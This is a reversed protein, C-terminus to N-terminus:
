RLASAPAAQRRRPCVRGPDQLSRSPSRRLPPKPTLFLAPAASQRIRPAPRPRDPGTQDTFAARPRGAAEGQRRAAARSVGPLFRRRSPSRPPPPHPHSTRRLEESGRKGARGEKVAKRVRRWRVGIERRPTGTTHTNRPEPGFDRARNRDEPGGRGAKGASYPYPTLVAGDDRGRPSPSRTVRRPGASGCPLSPPLSSGPQTRPPAPRTSAAQPPSVRAPPAHASRLAPRLPAARRGRAHRLDPAHRRGPRTVAAPRRQGEAIPPFPSRFSKLHAMPPPRPPPLYLLPARPGPISM